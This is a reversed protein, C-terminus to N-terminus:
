RVVQWLWRKILDWVPIALLITAPTVRRPDVATEASLAVVFRRWTEAENRPEAPLAALLSAYVDGVTVWGPAGRADLTVGFAAEVARIADWEDGDGGLGLSELM